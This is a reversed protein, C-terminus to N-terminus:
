TRKGSVLLYSARIWGRLQEDINEPHDVPVVHAFRHRSTQLWKSVVPAPDHHDLFFEVELSAKKLKVALFNSTAKYYITDPRHAEEQFPGLTTVYDRIMQYLVKLAPARKAFLDEKRVLVCSHQQNLRKFSRGCHPCSWM